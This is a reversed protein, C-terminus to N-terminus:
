TKSSRDISQVKKYKCATVELTKIHNLPLVEFAEKRILLGRLKLEYLDPLHEFGGNKTLRDCRSILLSKVSRPILAIHEPLFNRCASIELSTLHQPLLLL